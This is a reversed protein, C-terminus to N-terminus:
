KVAIRKHAEFAAAGGEPDNVRAVVEWQGASLGSVDARYVGGGQAAALLVQDDSTTALRRLLVTVEHGSVGSGTSDLIRIELQQGVLGIEASWGLEAQARREALARNYDLGQLYSKKVDEGPFTTVAYYLFLGNVAFMMGFFGAMWLLVHHGKFRGEGRQGISEHFATM